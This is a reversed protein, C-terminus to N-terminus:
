WLLFRELSGGALRLFFLFFVLADAPPAGFFTFSRAETIDAALRSLHIEFKEEFM